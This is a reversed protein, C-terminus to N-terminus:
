RNEAAALALVSLAVRAQKNAAAAWGYPGIKAEVVSSDGPALYFLHTAAAQFEINISNGEFSDDSSAIEDDVSITLLIGAGGASGNYMSKGTASVIIVAGSDYPGIRLLAAASNGEKADTVKLRKDNLISVGMTTSTKIEAQIEKLCAILDGSTPQTGLNEACNKASASGTAAILLCVCYVLSLQSKRM